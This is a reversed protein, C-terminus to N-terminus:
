RKHHDNINFKTGNGGALSTCGTFMGEWLWESLYTDEVGSWKDSVYITKLSSCGDFMYMMEDTGAYFSSLDLTKLSTCGRFMGNMSNIKSADAKSLDIEDAEYNRFLNDCNEPLVAGKEATVRNVRKDGSFHRIDDPNVDGAKITLIGTKRSFSVLAEEASAQFSMDLFDFAGPYVSSAGSFVTVALVAAATRKIIHKM